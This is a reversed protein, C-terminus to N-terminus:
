LQEAFNILGDAFAEWSLRLKEERIHAICEEKLGSVSFYRGIEKRISDPSVEEAVLGTGRDGITEKLGGVATVIMPVEFHYSVSSIGSQTASRYPLVTVDAASFYKKVESDKIYEPYVKIRDAAGSGDIQKQYEEFSGYPEGAIILQYEEGLGAFADILIDLGKYKRILGFFLINKKGSKLGLIREAESRSLKEGFHSYLPHPQIIHPITKSFKMLDRDVEGCMSIVGDVGSLIYSTFPRDFFRPEHPIINDAIMIVRCRRSMHRCVYGLSPGFYSMWYRVILLDPDWARIKRATSIYTFPDATDLLAESEIAVAEDDPTVYQTKGPFLFDPYQRSFSYAKVDHKRGLEEFINANFQAIGGRYPYFSSLIAIKM